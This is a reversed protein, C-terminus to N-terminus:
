DAVHDQAVHATLFNVVLCVAEAPDLGPPVPVLRDAPQCIFEAYGGGEGFTFGAVQQGVEVTSVGEGLKDVVGVFDEGPTYPVRPAGILSGSRRLMADYASVGAALVKVRVEGPQPELLTEEIVHLVDPGGRKSVVVRRHTATKGITTM